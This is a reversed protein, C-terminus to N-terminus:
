SRLFGGEVNIVQGTIWGADPGALFAIVKAVDAPQGIRAFPFKPLLAARLEDDIWGTDTPGPNVANVTIGKGAVAASFSLTFASIAGKSAVYALEDPMPGIDQGSTLSIIRGGEGKDFERAFAISLLMTARLNVAHHRDIEDATLEHWPQSTSHAANNVLVSPPGLSTSCDAILAAPVHFDSLDADRHQVRAGSAEVDRAIAEPGDIDEGWAMLRDYAQFHTFFIDHGAEALARCIAAGLAGRRSAGTVMAVPKSEGVLITGIVYSLAPEIQDPSGSDYM